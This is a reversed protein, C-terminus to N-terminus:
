RQNATCCDDAGDYDTIRRKQGCLVSPRHDENWRCIPLAAAIFDHTVNILADQPLGINADNTSCSQHQDPQQAKDNREACTSNVRSTAQFIKM